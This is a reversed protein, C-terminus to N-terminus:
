PASRADKRPLPAAPPYLGGAPQQQNGVRGARIRKRRADVLKENLFLIEHVKDSPIATSIGLHTFNIIDGMENTRVWQKDPFFGAVIGIISYDILGNPNIYMSFLPSGSNFPFVLAELLFYEADGFPGRIKEQPLLAVHGFRYTALNRQHGHYPEFLGAFFVEDGAAVNHRKTRSREETLLQGAGILTVEFPEGTPQIHLVALDVAPDDHFFWEGLLELYSVGSPRDSRNLRVYIAEGTDLLPRVVHKCTVQYSFITEGEQVVLYVSSGIPVFEGNEEKYLFGTCDNLPWPVRL